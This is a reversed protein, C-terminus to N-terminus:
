RDAAPQIILVSKADSHLEDFLRLRLPKDTPNRVTFHDCEGPKLSEKGSGPLRYESAGSPRRVKELTTYRAAPSVSFVKTHVSSENCFRIRAGSAVTASAPSFKRHDYVVKLRKAGVESFTLKVNDVYGDNSSEHTKTMDIRVRAARTGAPVSQEDKDLVFKTENDRKAASVPGVKFSGLEGGGAGLFTVRVVANDEQGLYGGFYASLKATVGGADIETTAAGLNVVQDATAPGACGGSFFNQGGGIRSGEAASPFLGTGYKVVTFAGTEPNWGQSDVDGGCSTDTSGTDQEAGPNTVVNGSPLVAHAPSAIALLLAFCAVLSAYM